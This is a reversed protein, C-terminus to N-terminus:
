LDRVMKIHEIGADMFSEGIASFGAQKYFETVYLQAHLYVHSYGNSMALRLLYNLMEHGIGQRRYNKRVAMRGIQGERTLRATGVPIASTQQSIDQALIHHCQWDADDWELHEPVQQEDIFVERRLLSLNEHQHSWNVEIIKINNM